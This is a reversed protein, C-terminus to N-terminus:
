INTMHMVSPHAVPGHNLSPEEDVKKKVRATIAPFSVVYSERPRSQNSAEANPFTANDHKTRPNIRKRAAKTIPTNRTRCVRDSVLPDGRRGHKERVHKIVPVTKRKIPNIEPSAKVALIFNISKLL